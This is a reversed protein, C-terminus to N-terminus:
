FVLFGLLGSVMSVSGGFLETCVVINIIYCLGAYSVNGSITM